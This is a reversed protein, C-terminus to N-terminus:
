GQGPGCGRRPASVPSSGPIANGTRGAAPGRPGPAPAPAPSRSNCPSGPRRGSGRGARGAPRPRRFRSGPWPGRHRACRHRHRVGPRCTSSDAPAAASTRPTSGCAAPWCRARGRARNCRGPPRRRAHAGPRVRRRARGPRGGPPWYRIPSAGPSTPAAASGRRRRACRGGPWGQAGAHGGRREEVGRPLRHAFRLHDAALLALSQLAASALPPGKQQM